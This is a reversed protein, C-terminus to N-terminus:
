WGMSISVDDPSCLTPIALGEAFSIIDLDKEDWLIWAHMTSGFVFMVISYCGHIFIYGRSLITIKWKCGQLKVARGQFHTKGFPFPRRGVMM